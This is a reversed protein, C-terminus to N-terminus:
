IQCTGESHPGDLKTTRAKALRLMQHHKINSLKAEQLLSKFIKEEIPVGCTKISSQRQKVPSQNKSDLQRIRGM